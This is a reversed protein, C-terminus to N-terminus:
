SSLSRQWMGLYTIGLDALTGIAAQTVTLARPNGSSRVNLPAALRCCM